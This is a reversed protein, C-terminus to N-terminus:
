HRDHHFVEEEGPHGVVVVSGDSAHLVEVPSGYLKSLTESTVVEEPTGVAVRGGAMYVVRDLASLIPNVDHAVLLVAAGTDRAIGRILGAVAQQNQIDLSDLPEDLALLRPHTVLAQAILLRQQEGGSLEGIPRDAYAAAGVSEIVDQVQKEFSRARGRQVFPLPLGWRVGDLGLRVVDRGRVRVDAEFHRRQPVYGIEPHGRRAPQGLVSISGAQLPLLGLIAKILTSKGSGNPGLIAIFEGPWVELDVHEWITRGGLRVAAGAVQVVPGTEGNGTAGGAASNVPKM